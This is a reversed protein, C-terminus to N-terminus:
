STRYRVIVIGSGGNGGNTNGGGNAGGGGGGTNSTGDVGADAGGVQGKGGGGLGGAGSYPGGIFGGGGGGGGYFSLSGSILSSVGDGGKGPYTTGSASGDSNNYGTGVTTGPGGAGGGGAGAHYSATGGDNGQGYIGSGGKSTPNNDAGQGGGGGGSGGNRGFELGATGSDRRCGGGGGGYATFGFASSNKGDFGQSPFTTAKSGGAGVTVTYTGINLITSGILVGGAGGGGAHNAGGGGGGAVILYEVPGARTVIFNSEGVTSFTHVRYKIGNLTINTITGGTAVPSITGAPFWSSYESDYWEVSGIDTNYRIQGGLASAPRQATTGTSLQLFGTDSITSNGIQAM